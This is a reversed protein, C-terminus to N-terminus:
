PHGSYEAFGHMWVSPLLDVPTGLSTLLCVTSPKAVPIQRDGASSDHDAPSDFSSQSIHLTISM